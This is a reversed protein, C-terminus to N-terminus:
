RGPLRTWSKEFKPSGIVFRTIIAKKISAAAAPAATGTSFLIVGAVPRRPVVTVTVMSPVAKVLAVNSPMVPTVSYEQSVETNLVIVALRMMEPVAGTPVWAVPTVVCYPELLRTFKVIVAAGGTSLLMVGVDPRRPVVTGTVRVPVVM